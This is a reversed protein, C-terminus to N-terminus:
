FLAGINALPLEQLDKEVKEPFVTPLAPSAFCDKSVKQGWFSRHFKLFFNDLTSTWSSVCFDLVTLWVASLGVPARRGMGDVMGWGAGEALARAMRMWPM